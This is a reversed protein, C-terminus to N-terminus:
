KVFIVDTDEAPDDTARKEDVRIFAAKGNMRLERVKKLAKAYSAEDAAVVATKTKEHEGRVCGNRVLAEMMREVYVAMGVAPRDNGFQGALKDYRGGAILAEGLGYTYANFIIGTYYRYSSLKGLDFGIYDDYGYIKMIEYIKELREIAETATKNDTLKKFDELREFSGFLSPLTLFLKGYKEDLGERKLLDEIGFINKDTILRVLEDYEEGEIGAEEAIAAFFATEGIEVQFQTLGSELLCEVTLAIMEADAFASADGILEAGLQTSQRPKGQYESSNIFTSGCYAIRVPDKRDKYYRAACRAVSPTMDPRLVLTNGERDFFRYMDKPRATGRKEGFVEFYEFVPTEIMDYGSLRMLGSLRAELGQKLMCESGYIDRVGEPTHLLRDKM